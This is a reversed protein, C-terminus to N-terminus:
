TEYARKTREIVIIAATPPAGSMNIRNLDCPIFQFPIGAARMYIVSFSYDQYVAASGRGDVPINYDSPTYVVMVGLTGNAYTVDQPYAQITKKFDMFVNAWTPSTSAGDSSTTLEPDKKATGSM